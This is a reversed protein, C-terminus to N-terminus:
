GGQVLKLMEICILATACATSTAIAPIIKGAIVKVKHRPAQAIGYNAARLNAAASVFDIHFNADVDKEFDAPQAAIGSVDIAALEDLAKLLDQTADELSPAETKKEEEEEDEEAKIKESSAVYEPAPPMMDAAAKGNRWEHEDPLMTEPESEVPLVQLGFAVAFLNAVAVLFGEHAENSIDFEAPSPFRKPPAWFPKGDRTTADEPYQAILDRM